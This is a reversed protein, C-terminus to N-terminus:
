IGLNSWKHCDRMVAYWSTLQTAFPMQAFVVAAKEAQGARGLLDVISVHHELTPTIGYSGNSLKEFCCQAEDVLGANNCSVLLLTFSTSDPVLGGTILQNFLSVVNEHEGLHANGSVLTNWSALDRCPLNAFLDHAKEHWGTRAYMDLASNNLVMDEKLLNRNDIEIFLAHGKEAAGIVGCAKLISSYTAANPSQGEQIMEEFLDLAEEYCGNQVHGVILTTWLTIDRICAKSTNFVEWALEVM